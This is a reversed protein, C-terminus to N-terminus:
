SNGFILIFIIFQTFFLLTGQTQKTRIISRIREPIEFEYEYGGVEDGQVICTLRFLGETFDSRKEWVFQYDTRNLQRDQHSKKMVFRNLDIDTQHNIFYRATALAQAEIISPLTLTDPIERRYGLIKGTSSIWMIYSTQLQDRPLDKLFQIEWHNNPIVDHALLSDLEQSTLSKNLYTLTNNDVNRRVVSQYATLNVNNKELYNRAIEEAELRNLHEKVLYSQNAPILLVVAIISVVLALWWLLHNNFM